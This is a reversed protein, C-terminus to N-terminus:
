NAAISRLDLRFKDLNYCLVACYELYTLRVCSYKGSEWGMARRGFCHTTRTKNRKQHIEGGIVVTYKETQWFISGWPLQVKQHIHNYTPSILRDKSSLRFDVVASFTSRAAQKPKALLGGKTARVRSIRIPRDSISSM